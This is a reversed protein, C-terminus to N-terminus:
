VREPQKKKQTKSVDAGKPERKVKDTPLAPPKSNEEVTFWGHFFNIYAATPKDAM